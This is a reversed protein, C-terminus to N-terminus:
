AQAALAALLTVVVLAVVVAVLILQEMVELLPNGALMVAVVLAELEPLEQGLAVVAVALMLLAAVVLPLHLEQAAM